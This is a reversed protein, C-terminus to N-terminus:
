RAGRTANTAANVVLMVFGDYGKTGVTQLATATVSPLEAVLRVFERVGMVNADTNSENVIEGNRVVNDVIMVTGPHSLELALRFYTPINAKDADIFVFEFPEVRDQIFQALSATAAGEHLTVLHDLGAREFNARAVRAHTADLELTVLAGDAPLGRAMWIASYGGLTGVELVRRARTTRVLLQLFRAQSATVNIAPLGAATSTALVSDLLADHPLLEGEFYADVATWQPTSEGM